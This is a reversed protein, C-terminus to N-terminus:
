TTFFTSIDYHDIFVKAYDHIHSFPTTKKGGRKAKLKGIRKEKEITLHDSTIAEKGKWVLKRPSYPLNTPISVGNEDGKFDIRRTGTLRIHQGDESEDVIIKRKSKSPKTPNNEIEKSKSPGDPQSSQQSSSDVFGPTSMICSEEQIAQPTSVLVDQAPKKLRQVKIRINELMKIIPKARADIIWKNFSEPNNDRLEQAYGELKNFEDIYSGELKELVLRKVRKM